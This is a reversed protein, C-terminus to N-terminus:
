APGFPWSFTPLTLPMSVSDPALTTPYSYGYLTFDPVATASSDTTPKGTQDEDLTSRISGYAPLLTTPDLYYTRFEGQGDGELYDFPVTKPDRGTNYFASELLGAGIRLLQGPNAMIPNLRVQLKIFQKGGPGTVMTPRQASLFGQQNDIYSLYKDLEDSTLGGPCIGDDLGANDVPNKSPVNCEGYGDGASDMKGWAANLNSWLYKVGSVCLTVSNDYHPQGNSITVFDGRRVIQHSSFDFQVLDYRGSGSQYLSADSFYISQLRQYQQTGQRKIVAFFLQRGDVNALDANTLSPGPTLGPVTTSYSRTPGPVLQFGAQDNNKAYCLGPGNPDTLCNSGGIGGVGPVTLLVVVVIVVCALVGLGIFLPKRSRKRGPPGPPLPPQAPAMGPQWGPYGPQQPPPVM